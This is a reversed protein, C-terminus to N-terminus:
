RGRGAILSGAAVGLGLVGQGLRVLASRDEGESNQSRFLADGAMALGVGTGAVRGFAVGKSGTKWEGAINDKVTKGFTKFFTKEDAYNQTWRGLIAMDKPNKPVDTM